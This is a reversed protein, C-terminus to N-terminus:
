EERLATLPDISTVQRAPLFCAAAGVLLFLAVVAVFTIADTPSVGFLLSSLLSTLLIAGGLGFVIGICVLGLGQRMVAAVISGRAAGLAMRIGLERSRQTVSLMLVSAIGSVSMVLALAAFVVLLTATVRPPAMSDHALHELTGVQDIGILPDVQRVAERVAMAAAAPDSATRVILSSTFGGRQAVPLYIEDKTSNALGYERTDGVVGVVEIWADPRFSFAVRQGVPNETPWRHRAMTKNIVAVLPASANDRGTFIRGALLPQGITTFYAEDAITIDVQPALQGQSLPQGAINFEVAGPGSAIGAPSLPVNSVMTAATVGGIARIKGMLDGTLQPFLEPKVSYRAFNPTLRLSLLHDTRFGPDVQSLKLLSRMMLGAGIVLTLSVAVQGVVLAHRLTQRRASTTRGGSQKLTEGAHQSSFAPALGFLVGTAVAVLLTFCLVPADMHVEAARTSYQAAFKVLVSLTLPALGAGVLGGGLSILISETLLQRLLRLRSAGLAARVAMEREMSLLRALMLNAVNACAILLVLGACALLLFFTTRARQTLNDRLGVVKMFYGSSSPYVDPHELGIRSAVVALDAQAQEVTVGPKLRAFGVMMRRKRNAQFGESSRTPCQVTTVYLDSESPYQPIPPLVGIVTHPKGNMEFVKGVVTPDGGRHDRWYSYSLVIVPPAGMRDDADVFTRGLLPTVGLVDFFNGSVVATQVREAGRSDSMLFVMTHHEVIGELTRSQERYDTLEKVSFPIDPVAAKTNQQHLVVLQGGDQYPLPRLLVGYVMSFIATNAGIGLALTFIAAMSFGPNRRMLRFGYRIDQLITDVVQARRADRCDDKLAEVPGVSLLAQRRAEAPTMGRSLNLEIQRDVHGRLEADLERELAQRRFLFHLISKM